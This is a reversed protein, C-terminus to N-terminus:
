RSEEITSKETKQNMDSLPAEDGFRDVLRGKYLQLVDVLIRKVHTTIPWDLVREIFKEVESIEKQLKNAHAKSM